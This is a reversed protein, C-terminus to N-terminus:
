LNKLRDALTDLYKQFKHIDNHGAGNVVVLEIGERLKTLREGHSLGILTDMDGHQIVIPGKIKPLWEDSRMPYRNVLGPLWPYHADGMAKLSEFPSVLVTLDPQVDSSLKAALGTGLSRGYVVLKKGAYQPAIRNWAVRMDDHLQAESEIQGSSKGYGRYDIMFLDYNVRRYFDVGTLWTQLNGGNGHLFFVVGKPNPLRLHLASLEAGAVPVKVEEVDAIKFQHDANLPVPSFILKEQRFYVLAVIGVYALAAMGLLSLAGRRAYVAWRSGGQSIAPSSAVLLIVNVSM